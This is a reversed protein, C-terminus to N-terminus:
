FGFISTFRLNCQNRLHNCGALEV